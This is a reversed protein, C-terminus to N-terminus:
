LILPMLQYKKRKSVKTGLDVDIEWTQLKAATTCWAMDDDNELEEADSLTGDDDSAEPCWDPDGDDHFYSDPLLVYAGIDPDWVIYSTSEVAFLVDATGLHWMSLRALWAGLVEFPNCTKKVGGKRTAKHGGKNNFMNYRKSAVGNLSEVGENCYKWLNGYRKVMWIVHGSGLYHFYNTVGNDKGGISKVLMCYTADIHMEFDNIDAETFELPSQLRETMHVYHYLFTMWEERRVSDTSPVAIYVLERLAHLQHIAFIKRSLDLPLKIKELVKSNKKEFKHTFSPPLEGVHRLATTLLDLTHKSEAKHVGQTIEAYLLNLVKENTRMPCHLVDIITKHLESRHGSENRMQRFRNDRVYMQLKLYEEEERLLLELVARERFESICTEEVGRLRLDEKVLSMPCIRVGTHINCSLDCGERTRGEAHLWKELAAFSKKKSIMDRERPTECRRMCQERLSDLCEYYPRSSLPIRPKVHKELYALRLTEWTLFAEDCVDHHRCQQTGTSPDYVRDKERCKLCGGPYGEQRYKSSISCLFCFNTCSHSGGGRRLYKHLYSMDAVVIVDIFVEHTQNDVICYGQAQIDRFCEVMRDFYKMLYSEDVFGAVAPTYMNRSQNSTKGTAQQCAMRPDSIKPGCMTIAKGRSSVRALDGTLPVIWPAKQTVLPCREKVYVEYVYRNVATVFDGEENGWCWIKGEEGCPFSSFGLSEALKLVKKQTRRLTTDSCLIGRDYKKKGVQCNSVAGVATANFQSNVDSRRALEVVDFKSRKKFEKEMEDLVTGKFGLCTLELWLQKRTKLSTRETGEGDLMTSAEWFGCAARLLIPNATKHEWGFARCVARRTAGYTSQEVTEQDEIREEFVECKAVLDDYADSQLTITEKLTEMHLRCLGNARRLKMTENQLHEEHKLRSEQLQEAHKSQVSCLEMRLEICKQKQQECEAAFDATLKESEELAARVQGLEHQCEILEGKLKMYSSQHGEEGVSTCRRKRANM